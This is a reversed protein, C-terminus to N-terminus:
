AALHRKPFLRWILGEARGFAMSFLYLAGAVLIITPGAALNLHYSALLGVLSSLIGLLSATGIMVTIDASWFRSSAAPLMMLGVALLTGLANFAGVLNLVVLALFALHVPTGSRSVSRLFGPDVTDM